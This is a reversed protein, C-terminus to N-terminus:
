TNRVLYQALLLGAPNITRSARRIVLRAVQEQTRTSIDGGEFFQVFRVEVVYTLHGDVVGKDIITPALTPRVWSVLRDKVIKDIVRSAALAEQYEQFADPTFYRRLGLIHERYDSFALGQVDAVRDTAWILVSADSATPMDVPVM